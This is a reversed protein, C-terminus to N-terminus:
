GLNVNTAGRICYEDPNLTRRIHINCRSKEHKVCTSWATNEVGAADLSVTGKILPFKM